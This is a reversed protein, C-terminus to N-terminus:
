SRGTVRRGRCRAAARGPASPRSRLTERAFVNTDSDDICANIGLMRVQDTAHNLHGIEGALPRLIDMAMAGVAGANGGSRARGALAPIAADRGFAMGTPRWPASLGIALAHGAVHHGADLPRDLAPTWITLRDSPPGPGHLPSSARDSIHLAAM